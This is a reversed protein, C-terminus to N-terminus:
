EEKGKKKKYNRWGMGIIRGIESGGIHHKIKRVIM